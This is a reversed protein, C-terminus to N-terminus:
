KQPPPQGSKQEPPKPPLKFIIEGPRALGMEERAIREIMRPDTRLQQVQESLRKNEEHMQAIEVRLKEVEKRARFLTLLGHQGFIDHVVLALLALVFLSSGWRRLFEVTRSEKRRPSARRPAAARPPEAKLLAKRKVTRTM